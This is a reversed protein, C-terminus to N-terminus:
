HWFSIWHGRQTHHLRVPSLSIYGGAVAQDDTMGSTLVVNKQNTSKASSDLPRENKHKSNKCKRLSLWYADRGRPDIMHRVPRAIQKHGLSTVKRGKIDSSSDVDPINVNLVHYPLSKLFELISTDTLLKVIENAVVQYDSASEQGGNKVGGGVLSTAIAPIGLLQATLAAGFTGSFMVDQGLNAGSNIGTIVCDFDVDRYLEHLALHVCDAPSGNVAIFGSPLQHTHLPKSVSLASAYGSQEENPAVVVVEGITSLAQSLALLGPAYVGDDNSILIKM